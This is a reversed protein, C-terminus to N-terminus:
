EHRLCELPDVRAARIAPIVNAAFAIMGLLACAGLITSPDDSTVGYLVGTMLRTLGLAAAVGIGLGIIVLIMGRGLVLKLIDLPLSGLAMRVGIEMTRETVLYSVVGYIGVSALILASLALITMLFASFRERSISSSLVAAMTKVGFLPVDKDLSAIAERVPRVVSDPRSGSTRVALTMQGSFEQGRDQLYSLYIQFRPEVAAGEQRVTGAIGVITLWPRSSTPAGLKIRKGTPDEGRFFDRATNESILAVGKSSEVDEESIDRGRFIPINMTSFYGPSVAHFDALPPTGTPDYPRGEVSFPDDSRRGGGILPPINVTAAGEVGPLHRVLPLLKEYFLSRQKADSYNPGQLSINGLLVRDAKYGPDVGRLHNFTKIMLGAGILLLVALAIQGIVLLDRMRRHGSSGHLGWAGGTGLSPAVDVKYAHLAPAVGILLGTLISIGFTFLFTASDIGIDAIRPVNVPKMAILIKTGALALLLGLVGGLVSLVLSEVIMQNSLRKRSAGLAVRVALEKRRSGLRGLLLNAINACAILLVFAVGCMLILLSGRVDGVVEENLSSVTIQWGGNAGGPGRYSSPYRQDLQSAVTNMEARAQSLTIGSKLKALVTINHYGARTTVAQPDLALPIWIDAREAFPFSENPFRFDKPMVGEITYSAGNLVVSRGLVGSDSGFRRQWLQHSLIAVGTHGPEADEAQFDSGISPHAGLMGFMNPSVQSGTVLEAPGEGTMTVQLNTFGAVEGFVHKENEYEVLEAPLAGIRMMELAKFNDWIVVLRGADKYPLPRLLIANLVSFIASNAGIGIGITLLAALAFGPRKALWRLTYFVDQALSEM